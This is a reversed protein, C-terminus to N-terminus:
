EKIKSYAQGVRLWALYVKVGPLIDNGRHRKDLKGTSILCVHAANADFTKERYRSYAKLVLCVRRRLNDRDTYRFRCNSGALSLKTCQLFVPYMHASGSPPPPLPISERGQFIVFIYFIAFSCHKAMMRGGAFRWKFPTESALRHHAAILAIQIREGRVFLFFVTTLTPGGRALRSEPDACTYM